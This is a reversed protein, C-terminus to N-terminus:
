QEEFACALATYASTLALIVSVPTDSTRVWYRGGAVTQM